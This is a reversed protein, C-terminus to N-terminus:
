RTREDFSKLGVVAYCRPSLLPDFLQVLASFPVEEQPLLYFVCFFEMFCILASDQTEDWNQPEHSRADEAAHHECKLLKETGEGSFPSSIRVFITDASRKTDHVCVFKDGMSHSVKEATLKNM